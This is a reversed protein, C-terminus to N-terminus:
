SLIEEAFGLEGARQADPEITTSSIVLSVLAGLPCQYGLDDDYFVAPDALVESISGQFHRRGLRDIQLSLRLRDM